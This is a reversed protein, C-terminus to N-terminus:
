GWECGDSRSIRVATVARQYADKTLQLRTLLAQKAEGFTLFVTQACGVDRSLYEDVPDTTRVIGYDDPGNCHIKYNSM